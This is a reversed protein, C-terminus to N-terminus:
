YIGYEFQSAYYDLRSVLYELDFQSGWPKNRLYGRKELDPECLKIIFGALEEKFKEDKVSINNKFEEVVEIIANRLYPIIEHYTGNWVGWSHEHRIKLRVSAAMNINSIYFLILSGLMFLDTGYKQRLGENDIYNYLIDFPAYTYDGPFPDKNFPSIIDEGFSCTRGMDGIKTGENLFILINSPKLDQHAIKNTHLQKIGITISHLSRIVWAYDLLELQFLFKRVDYDALEFIIYSIKNYLNTSDNYEGFTYAKIIKDLKKNVCKKLIEREYIYASTALYMQDATQITKTGLIKAYDIVKLFARINSAKNKVIYCVSFNGGSDIGEEKEIKEEVVWGDNLEIGIMNEAPTGLQLAETANQLSM